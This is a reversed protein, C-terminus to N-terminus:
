EQVFSKLLKAQKKTEEVTFGLADIRSLRSGGYMDWVVAAMGEKYAVWAREAKQLYARCRDPKEGKACQAKAQKYYIELQEDWYEHAASLCDFQEASSAAKDTCANFGPALEEACRATVPLIAFLFILMIFSHLFHHKKM